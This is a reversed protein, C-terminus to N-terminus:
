RSIQLQSIAQQVSSRAEANRRNWMLGWNKFLHIIQITISYKVWIRIAIFFHTALEAPLWTHSRLCGIPSLSHQRWAEAMNPLEAGESLFLYLDHPRSLFQKTRQSKTSTTGPCLTTASPTLSTLYAEMGGLTYSFPVLLLRNGASTSRFIASFAM